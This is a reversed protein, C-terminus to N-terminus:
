AINMCNKLTAVDTAHGGDGYVGCQRADVLGNLGFNKRFFCDGLSDKVITAGDPKLLSACGTVGALIQDFDGGGACISAASLPEHYCTVSIYSFQPGSYDSGTGVLKDISSVVTRCSSPSASGTCDPPPPTAHSPSVILGVGALACFVLSQAVKIM